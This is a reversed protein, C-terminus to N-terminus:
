AERRGVQAVAQGSEGLWAGAVNMSERIGLSYMTQRNYPGMVFRHQEYRLWPLYDRGEEETLNEVKQKRSFYERGEEDYWKWGTTARKGMQEQTVWPSLGM